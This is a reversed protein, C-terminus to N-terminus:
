WVVKRDSLGIFISLLIIDFRCAKPCRPESLVWAVSREREVENCEPRVVILYRTRREAREEGM